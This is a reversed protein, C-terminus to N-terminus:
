AMQSQVVRGKWAREELADAEKNGIGQIIMFLVDVAM